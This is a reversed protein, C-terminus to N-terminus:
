HLIVEGEQLAHDIAHSGVAGTAFGPADGKYRGRDHDNGVFLFRVVDPNGKHREREKENQIRVIQSQFAAKAREIVLKHLLQVSSRRRGAIHIM